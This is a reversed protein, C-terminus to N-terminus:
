ETSEDDADGLEQLARRIRALGSTKTSPTMGEGTARDVAQADRAMERLRRVKQDRSRNPDTLVADIARAVVGNPEDYAEPNM